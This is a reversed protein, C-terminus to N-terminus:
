SEKTKQKARSLPEFNGCKKGVQRHQTTNGRWSLWAARDIPRSHARFPRWALDSGREGLM